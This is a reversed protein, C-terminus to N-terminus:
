LWWCLTEPGADMTVMRERVRVERTDMGRGTKLVRIIVNPGGM